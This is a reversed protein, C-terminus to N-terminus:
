IQQYRYRFTRLFGQSYNFTGGGGGLFRMTQLSLSFM